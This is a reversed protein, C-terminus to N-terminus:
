TVRDRLAGEPRWPLALTFAEQYGVCRFHTPGVQIAWPYHWHGFLWLSPQVVRLVEDLFLRTRSTVLGLGKAIQARGIAEAPQDYRSLAVRSSPRPPNSRHPGITIPLTDAARDGVVRGLFM